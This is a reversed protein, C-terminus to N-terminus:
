NGDWKEIVDVVTKDASSKFFDILQQDTLKEKKTKLAQWLKKGAQKGSADYIGAAAVHWRCQYWGYNKPYDRGIIEYKEEIDQLSTFKFEKSGGAVVMKPFLTLAPLLEPENEAIYAHLLINVFLEGMWKRQMNLGAQYHFAHGLEHIALLDFFAQMSINGNNSYVKQVQAGLTQPLQDLPPLFSKWFPNDEAAVYLTKNSPDYHPMGYVLNMSSYRNWDVPSLVLLTVLPEYVLLDKYWTMAKEVQKTIARARLEYGASYFITATKSNIKNLSDLHQANAQLHLSMLLISFQLIYKQM